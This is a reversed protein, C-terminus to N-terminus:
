LAGKTSSTNGTMWLLAGVLLASSISRGALSGLAAGAVGWTGVTVATAVLAVISGTANAVFNVQPKEIAWLGNAAGMGLGEVVIAVALLTVVQQYNAYAEGYVLSLLYALTLALTSRVVLRRVGRRGAAVFAESAQPAMVNNFALLLPNALLIVMECAAYIGTAATGVLAALLWPSVAGRAVFILQSAVGWRGFQWNSAAAARVNRAAFRVHQRTGRYWLAATIAAALGIAGYAASASLRQTAVLMALATLQLGAMTADIRIAAKLDLDALAYRRAFEVLLALPLSLAMFAITPRLEASPLWSAAGSAVLLLIPTAVVGLLVCHALVSGSFYRRDKPDMRRSFITYPLSILSEQVCAVLSYFTFALTYSGLEQPGCLRGLLVTTVFRTGSVIAQDFVALLARQAGANLRMRAREPWGSPWAGAWTAKAPQEPELSML